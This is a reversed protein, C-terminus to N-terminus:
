SFPIWAQDALGNLDSVKLGLDSVTWLSDGIVISRRIGPDYAVFDANGAPKPKPHVITGTRTVASDDIKLVLASGNTQEAGNWTNLPLVAMGTKAWYLFAHPDWEAESGSDKQFMQSLRRPNAPDSVDFLSVQTGLTRGKESAEQGVGILRGEGAPHLYASYGTIKLEGTKRPAAPDRLDLTYLPDVQRFTVVYGVPGIFRVSYIREGDGLGGVEGVEGLTDAKLVYVASSSNQGATSTTAVRLYGEHESLSYQNLLRGPVKGSAVYRPAGPATIDFRHVETEEPPEVPTDPPM